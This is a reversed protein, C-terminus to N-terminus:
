VILDKPDEYGLAKAIPEAGSLSEERLWYSLSQRSTGIQKSLWYASKDLRKLEQKIKKTNLKM